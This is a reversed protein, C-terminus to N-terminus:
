SALVPSDVILIQLLGSDLTDQFVMLNEPCNGAELKWILISWDAPEHWYEGPESFELCKPYSPFYEGERTRMSNCMPIEETFACFPGDRVCMNLLALIPCLLSRRCDWWQARQSVHICPHVCMECLLHFLLTIFSPLNCSQHNVLGEPELQM